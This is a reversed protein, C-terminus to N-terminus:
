SAITLSYCSPVFLIKELKANKKKLALKVKDGDLLLGGEEVEMELLGRFFGLQTQFHGATSNQIHREKIIM